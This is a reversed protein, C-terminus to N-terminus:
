RNCSPYSASVPVSLGSSMILFSCSVFYSLYCVFNLILLFRNMYFVLLFTAVTM